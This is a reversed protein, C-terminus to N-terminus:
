SVLEQRSLEDHWTTLQEASARADLYLCAAAGFLVESTEQPHEELYSGCIDRLAVQEHAADAEVHEHFYHATALPLGVREIGAAIRRCPVSSTGEFAALHGLAAARLRQQLGLMSMVNNVALVTAPTRDVYAGYGSDLGAADLAEGYLRAHLNEARGAGFEDYQLEALAVKAAGEVRGVVFAHPDSEKLHYLSRVALFDLVQERTANRQLYSAMSPGELHRILAEFRTVLDRSEAAVTELLPATALRLVREFSAELRRRVGVAAPEWEHSYGNDFGRYSQEYLMWLALQLDAGLIHDDLEDPLRIRQFEGDDPPTKLARGVHESVPGRGEPVRM